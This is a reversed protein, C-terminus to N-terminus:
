QFRQRSILMQLYFVPVYFIFYTFICNFCMFCLTFMYTTITIINHYYYVCIYFECRTINILAINSTFHLRFLINLSLATHDYLSTMIHIIIMYQWCSHNGNIRSGDFQDRHILAHSSTSEGCLIVVKINKTTVKFLRSFSSDIQRHNPIGHHM